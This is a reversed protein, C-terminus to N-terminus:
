GGSGFGTDPPDIWDEPPWPSPAGGSCPFNPSAPPFAPPWSEATWEEPPFGEPPWSPITVSPMGLPVPTKPWTTTPPWPMPIPIEAGVGLDIEPIGPKPPVPFKDFFSGALESPDPLEGPWDPWDFSPECGTGAGSGGSGGGASQNVQPTLTPLSPPFAMKFPSQVPIVHQHVDFKKRDYEMSNQYDAVQNAAADIRGATALINGPTSVDGHGPNVTLNGNIIFDGNHVTVPTEILRDHEARIYERERCWRKENKCDTQITENDQMWIRHGKGPTSDNNDNQRTYLMTDGEGLNLPRYRRDHICLAIGHSRDGGLFAVAAQSESEPYTEFGYEQFREVNDESEDDLIDIQLKQTMGSNYVAKLIARGFLLMIRDKLPQVFRNLQSIM